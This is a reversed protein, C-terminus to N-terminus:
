RINCKIKWYKLYRRMLECGRKWYKARNDGEPLNSFATFAGIM